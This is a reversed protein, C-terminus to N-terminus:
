GWKVVLTGDEVSAQPGEDGEARRKGVACHVNEAMTRFAPQTEAQTDAIEASIPLEALTPLGFREQLTNRSRGFPHHVAGCDPCAFSSMNEVIGLVPVNVHEFMLIGKAVDVLSLAQPTTVIIAGDLATQQVITLQIDGTGPPLDIILYDLQGWDTQTLIQQTYNSVMPGRMVAPSEGLVFGLSMVKLDGITVPIIKNDQAFVPPRHRNLLTPISPGYIDADLLGVALGDAAM